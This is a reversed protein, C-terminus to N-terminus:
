RPFNPKALPRFNEEASNFLYNPNMSMHEKFRLRDSGRIKDIEDTVLRAAAKQKEIISANVSLNYGFYEIMPAVHRFVKEELYPIKYLWSTLSGKNIPKKIQDTSWEIKSVAIESGIFKEHELLTDEWSENLFKIVQRM